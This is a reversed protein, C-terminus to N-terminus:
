VSKKLNKFFKIIDDALLEPQELAPFHGGKSIDTWHVIHLGKEIYARPPIPIEKPFNAFGVPIRVFDDKGFKLPNLSIEHYMRTSSHITQTLWYLTVNALLEQKTFSNEIHGDNDSWANFKEIIWGCLGIPSDNLGYALSLPKTSQISAYAGEKENWKNIRKRFKKLNTDLNQNEKVYPKFSDSIYNLHLGIINDPYKQAIKISIGAGIDGGQLGYQNYGLKIMLKHWVDANYGYDSGHDTPKESFGFGIISPIVLDFALDESDTLYPIIKIMELFSGPWGHTILIPIANKTKSKVHLFHIKTGDITAIFNPYANINKEITRWNFEKIWFDALEKLYSLNTGYKWESNNIEDPWRTKKIREKLDDLESQPIDVKFKEIMEVKETNPIVISYSYM